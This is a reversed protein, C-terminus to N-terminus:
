RPDAEDDWADLNERRFYEYAEKAARQVDILVIVVWIALGVSLVAVTLWVLRMMEDTM